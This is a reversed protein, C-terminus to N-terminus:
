GVAKRIREAYEKRLGGPTDEGQYDIRLCQDYRSAHEELLSEVTDPKVHRCEDPNYLGGDESHIRWADGYFVLTDCEFSMNCNRYEIVDGPRIPVGDADVPLRMHTQRMEKMEDSLTEYDRRMADWRSDTEGMYDVIEQLKNRDATLKDVQAILFDRESILERVRKNLGNLAEQQNAIKNQFENNTM